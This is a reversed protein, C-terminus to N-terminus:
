KKVKWTDVRFKGMPGRCDPRFDGLGVRKGSADVIQRLLREGIIEEDLEVEFSLAWEDFRPRFRTIRGGTAPIRVPRQDVSWPHEHRIEATVGGLMTVAAPVLSSKLTTVKTKGAKFFKGGATICVLLNATPIVAAPSGSEDLYLRKEADDHASLREGNLEVAYTRRRGPRKWERLIAKELRAAAASREDEDAGLFVFRGGAPDGLNVLYTIAADTWNDCAAIVHFGAGEIGLSFGGCGCFLDMGLLSPPAAALPVLIGGTTESWTSPAPPRVGVPTEPKSGTHEDNCWARGM